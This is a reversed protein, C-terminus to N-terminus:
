KTVKLRAERMCLCGFAVEFLSHTLSERPVKSIRGIAPREETYSMQCSCTNCVQKIDSSSQQLVSIIEEQHVNDWLGDTGAVILDGAQM